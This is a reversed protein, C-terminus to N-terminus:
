VCEALVRKLEKIAEIEMTFLPEGGVDWEMAELALKAVKLLDDIRRQKAENDKAIHLIIEKMEKENVNTV